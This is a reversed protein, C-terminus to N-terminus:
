SLQKFDTGQKIHANIEPVMWCFTEKKQTHTKNSQM